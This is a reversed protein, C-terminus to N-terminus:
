VALLRQFFERYRKLAVRLDETSAEEGRSWQAELRSRTEAFGSTLQEVVQSVLADAKQVCGRPDDVFAAQVEDWRSRLRPLESQAFLEKDSSEDTSVASGTTEDSSRGAETAKQEVRSREDSTKQEERSREDTGNREERSREDTGNQGERSREDTAQGTPSVTQASTATGISSEDTTTTAVDDASNAAQSPQDHTTM